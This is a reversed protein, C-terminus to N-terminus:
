IDLENTGVCMYTLSKKTELKIVPNGMKIFTINKNEPSKGVVMYGHVIGEIKEDSPNQLSLMLKNLNDNILTDSVLLKDCSVKTNFGDYGLVNEIPEVQFHLITDIMCNVYNPFSNSRFKIENVSYPNNKRKDIKFFFLKWSYQTNKSNGLELSLIEKSM